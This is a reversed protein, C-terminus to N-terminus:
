WCCTLACTLSRELLVLSYLETAPSAGALGGVNHLNRSAAAQLIGSFMQGLRSSRWTKTLRHCPLTQDVHRRVIRLLLLDGNAQRARAAYVSSARCVATLLRGPLPGLHSRVWSSLLFHIAPQRRSPALGDAQNCASRPVPCRSFAFRRVYFGSEFLGVFFRLAYLAKFSKVNYTALTAIGWLLELSPIQAFYCSTLGERRLRGAHSHLSRCMRDM